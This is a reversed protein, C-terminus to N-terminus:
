RQEECHQRVSTITIAAQQDYLELTQKRSTYLKKIVEIFSEARYAELIFYLADRNYWHSVGKVRICYKNEEVVEGWICYPYGDSRWFAYKMPKISM